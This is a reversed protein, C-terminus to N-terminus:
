KRYIVKSPAWKDKPTSPAKPYGLSIINFPELNAPLALIARLKEAREEVPYIGCWVGGLGLAHAALLINETAASCDLTWNGIRRTDGTFTNDINGCVVIALPASAVMKATKFSAAISDKVADNSIVVFTWPQKNVASPAAMGARLLTEVIEDPIARDSYARVSTRTMICDIVANDTQASVELAGVVAMILLFFLNKFTM